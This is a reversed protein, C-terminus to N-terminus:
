SPIEHLAVRSLFKWQGGERILTDEYDGSLTPVPKNDASKTFFTWKSRATARDGDVHIAFNTMLHFSQVNKPDFPAPTRGSKPHALMATIDEPGKHLGLSGDWTGNTAFLQGYAVYDRTDLDHGYEILLDRIQQQDEILKLRAEVSSRSAQALATASWTLVTATIASATVAVIAYGYWQRVSSITTM